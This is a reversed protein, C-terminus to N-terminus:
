NDNRTKVNKYRRNKKDLIEQLRVQKGKRLTGDGKQVRTVKGTEILQHPMNYQYALNHMNQSYNKETTRANACLGFREKYEAISMQHAEKAHSGLRKYAMGCIHCVVYGRHDHTVRGKPPLPNITGGNRFYNYCSQCMGVYSRPTYKGCHSCTM